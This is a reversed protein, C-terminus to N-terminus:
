DMQRMIRYNKKVNSVFSTFCQGKIHPFYVKEAQMRTKVIFIVVNHVCICWHFARCKFFITRILYGRTTKFPFVFYVLWFPRRFM